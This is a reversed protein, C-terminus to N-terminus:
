PCRTDGAVGGSLLAAGAPEVATTRVCMESVCLELRELGFDAFRLLRKLLALEDLAGFPQQHQRKSEGLL